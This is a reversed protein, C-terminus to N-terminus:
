AMAPPRPIQDDDDGPKWLLVQEGNADFIRFGLPHIGLEFMSVQNRGRSMAHELTASTHSLRKTPFLLDREFRIMEVIFPPRTAIM